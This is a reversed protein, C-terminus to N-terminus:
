LRLRAILGRAGVPRISLAREVKVTAVCRIRACGDLARRKGDRAMGERRPVAVGQMWSVGRNRLTNRAAVVM